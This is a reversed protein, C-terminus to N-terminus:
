YKVLPLTVDMFASAEILTIGHKLYLEVTQKELLQDFPSHILNFGFTKPCRAQLTIIAQEIKALRLGAAGFFGAIGAEACALVLDVSSIGNAMAGCLYPYGIQLEDVFRHDGLAQPLLAPLNITRSGHRLSVPRALYRCDDPCWHYSTTPSSAPYTM